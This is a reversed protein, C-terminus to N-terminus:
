IYDVPLMLGAMHERHVTDKMRALLEAASHIGAAELRAKYRQAAAETGLGGLLGGKEDVVQHWTQGLTFMEVPKVTLM